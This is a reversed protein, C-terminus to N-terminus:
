ILGENLAIESEVIMCDDCLGGSQLEKGCEICVNEETM